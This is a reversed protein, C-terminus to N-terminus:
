RVDPERRYAKQYIINMNVYFHEFHQFPSSVKLAYIHVLCQACLISPHVACNLHLSLLAVSIALLSNIECDRHAFSRIISMFPFPFHQNFYIM